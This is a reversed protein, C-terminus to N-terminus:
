QQLEHLFASPSPFDNNNLVISFEEHDKNAVTTVSHYDIKVTTMPTTFLEAKKLCHKFILKCYPLKKSILVTSDLSEHYRAWYNENTFKKPDVQTDPDWFDVLEPIQQKKVPFIKGAM